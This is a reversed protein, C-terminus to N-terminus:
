ENDFINKKLNGLIKRSVNNKDFQIIMELFNSPNPLLYKFTM